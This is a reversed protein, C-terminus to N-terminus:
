YRFKIMNDADPVERGQQDVVSLNIVCVDKGDALM